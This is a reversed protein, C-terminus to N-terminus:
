GAPAKNAIMIRDRGAHKARYLAEDAAKLLNKGNEGHEPFITVGFSVTIHGILTGEHSIAHHKIEFRLEEMRKLTNDLTTEPLILIFEEGGYRCAIDSGRIHAKFLTALERLVTDGADHGYTDNVRKFHDIDLMVVALPHRSREARQLERALSEEMFRRNFLNTLPDRIAEQRLTEHLQANELIIGAIRALLNGYQKEDADFGPGPRTRGIGLIGQCTNKIFVPLLITAKLGLSSTQTRINPLSSYDEAIFPQGTDIVQWIPSSPDDERRSVLMEYAVPKNKLTARDVLLEDEKLTLCGWDVDLLRSIQDVIMQLLKDIDRLKLMELTIQHLQSLHENHRRLIDETRKREAYEHKEQAYLRANDLALAALQAFAELTQVEEANFSQGPVSHFVGLVGLNVEGATIPVLVGARVGLAATQPRLGPETSYDDAFYPGKQFFARSLPGSLQTRHWVGKEYPLDQPITAWDILQDGEIVGIYGYPVNLLQTANYLITNLVEEVGRRNFLDFSVKHLSTLYENRLRLVEEKQKREAIETNLEATRIAIQNELGENQSQIQQYMAELEKLRTHDVQRLHANYIALTVHSLYMKALEFAEQTFPQDTYRAILVVGFSDGKARMPLCITHEYKTTFGPPYITRPDQLSNNICEPIGSRVVSGAIGQDLPIEWQRTLEKVESTGVSSVFRLIGADRDVFRLGAYDFPLSERLVELTHEVIEAPTAVSLAAQSIELLRQRIEGAHKRETIDIVSVLTNPGDSTELPNLGVEVPIVRGNKHVGCLDRGEGMQRLAPSLIYADKYAKHQQQIHKPVLMEVSQGVLEGSSYGFLRETPHNSLVIKGARNVVILANPTGDLLIRFQEEAQKRQALEQAAQYLARRMGFTHLYQMALIMPILFAYSVWASLPTHTIVSPPLMANNEAWVFGLGILLSIGAVLVSAQESFIVGTLLTLAIFNVFALGRIGGGTGVAVTLIILLIMVIVNGALRSWNRREMWMAILGSLIYGLGLLGYRATANPLFFGTLAFLGGFGVIGWLLYHFMVLRIANEEESVPPFISKM